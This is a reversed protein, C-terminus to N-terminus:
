AIRQFTLRLTFMGKPHVKQKRKRLIDKFFTFIAGIALMIAWVECLNLLITSAQEPM